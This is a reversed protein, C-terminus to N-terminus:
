YGSHLFGRWCTGSITRAASSSQSFGSMTKKKLSMASSSRVALCSMACAPYYPTMCPGAIHHKRLHREEARDIEPGVAEGFEVYSEFLFEFVLEFDREADEAFTVKYTM